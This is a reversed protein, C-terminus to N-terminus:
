ALRARIQQQVEEQEMTLHKVRRGRIRIVWGRVRSRRSVITEVKGFTTAATTRAGVAAATAAAAMEAAMGAVM